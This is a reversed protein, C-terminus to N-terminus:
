DKIGNRIIDRAMRDIREHGPDAECKAISRRVAAASGKRGISELHEAERRLM